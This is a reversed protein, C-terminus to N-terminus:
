PKASALPVTKIIDFFLTSNPGIETVPQKTQPDLIRVSGETIIYPNGRHIYTFGSDSYGTVIQNSDYEKSVIASIKNNNGITDIYGGSNPILGNTEILYYGGTENSSVADGIVADTLGTTDFYLTTGVPNLVPPNEYMRRFDSTKHGHLTDLLFSDLAFIGGTAKDQLASQLYYEVGADDVQLPVILNDSLGLQDQWFSRPQLDHFVIGSAQNIIYFRLPPGAVWRVMVNQKVPHDPDSYNAIPMHAYPVSFVQGASGYEIAFQSAGVFYPVIYKYTDADTFTVTTPPDVYVQRFIMDGNTTNDTRELMPNIPAFLQAAAASAPPILGIPNSLMQTLMVAMGQPDYVGQKIPVSVVKKDLHRDGPGQSTYIIDSPAVYFDSNKVPIGDASGLPNGPAQSGFPLFGQNSGPYKGSYAVPQLTGVQFIVPERSAMYIWDNQNNYDSNCHYVNFYGGNDGPGLNNYANSGFLDATQLQNNQDLYAVTMKFILDTHGNCNFSNVVYTGPEFDTFSSQWKYFGVMHCQIHDLAAMEKINYCSFWDFTPGTWTVNSNVTQKIVQNPTSTTDNPDQYDRDYISFTLVLQTDQEIVINNENVRQSDISAMRLTIVDGENIIVPAGFTNHWVANNPTLDANNRNLELTTTVTATNNAM